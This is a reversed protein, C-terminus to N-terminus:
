QADEKIASSSWGHMRWQGAPCSRSVLVPQNFIQQINRPVSSAAFWSLTGFSNPHDSEGCRAYM